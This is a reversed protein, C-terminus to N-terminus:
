LRLLILFTDLHSTLSLTLSLSVAEFVLNRCKNKDSTQSFNKEGNKTQNILQKHYLAHGKPNIRKHVSAIIRNINKWRNREM